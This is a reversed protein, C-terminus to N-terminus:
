KKIQSTKPVLIKNRKMHEFVSNDGVFHGAGAFIFTTGGEEIYTPILQAWASDRDYFIMKMYKEVAISSTVQTEGILKAMAEKDDNLYVEYLDDITADSTNQEMLNKLTERLIELQEEFTFDEYLVINMQVEPTDLGQVEIGLGAATSLLVFDLGYQASLTTKELEVTTLLTLLFWPKYLFAAQLYEESLVNELFSIEEQSLHDALTNEFDINEAEEMIREALVAQVNGIDETSLEGFVRDATKLANQVADPLPYLREDGVHVTGLIYVSSPTGDASTGRIEWFMRESKEIIRLKASDEAKAYSICAFLLVCLIIHGIKKSHTVNKIYISQM